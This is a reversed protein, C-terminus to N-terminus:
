HNSQNVTKCHALGGHEQFRELVCSHNGRTVGDKFTINIHSLRLSLDFPSVELKLQGNGVAETINRRKNVTAGDM